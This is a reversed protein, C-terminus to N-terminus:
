GSYERLYALSYSERFGDESLIGHNTDKKEISEVLDHTVKLLYVPLKNGWTVTIKQWFDHLLPLVRLENEKFASAIGVDIVTLIRNLQQTELSDNLPIEALEQLLSTAHNTNKLVHRASSWITLAKVHCPLHPNKLWETRFDKLKLKESFSWSLWILQGLLTDLLNRTDHPAAWNNQALLLVGRVGDISYNALLSLDHRDKDSYDISLLPFLNTFALQAVHDRWETSSLVHLYPAAVQTSLKKDYPSVFQGIKKGLDKNDNLAIFSMVGWKMTETHDSFLNIDDSGMLKKVATINEQLLKTRLTNSRPLGNALKHCHEGSNVLNQVLFQFQKDNIATSSISESWANIFKDAKETNAKLSDKSNTLSEELRKKEQAAYEEGGWSTEPYLSINALRKAEAEIRSSLRHSSHTLEKYYRAIIWAIDAKDILSENLISFAKDTCLDNEQLKYILGAAGLLQLYSNRSELLLCILPLEQKFALTQTILEIPMVANTNEPKNELWQLVLKPQTKFAFSLLSSLGYHGYIRSSPYHSISHYSGDLTQWDFKSKILGGYALEHRDFPQRTQSIATAIDLAESIEINHSLSAFIDDALFDNSHAKVVGMGYLIICIAEKDNPIRPHTTTLYLDRYVVFF